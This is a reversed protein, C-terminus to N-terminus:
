ELLSEISKLIPLVSDAVVCLKGHHYMMICIIFDTLMHFLLGISVLRYNGKFFFLVVYIGMFFFTHLPHIGISCRNAQFIPNAFLHDLDVMMTLLFIIYAKKWYKRFFVLAIILPFIFHLFYHIIAQM